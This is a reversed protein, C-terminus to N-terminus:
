SRWFNTTGAFVCGVITALVQTLFISEYGLVKERPMPPRGETLGPRPARVLCTRGALGLM